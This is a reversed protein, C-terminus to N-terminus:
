HTISFSKEWQIHHTHYARESQNFNETVSQNFNETVVYNDSCTYGSIHKRSPCL